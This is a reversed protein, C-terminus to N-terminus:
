VNSRQKFWEYLAKMEELSANSKLMNARYSIISINGEVYGLSPVLKDISPSNDEAQGKNFMLEMGLVPCHTPINIMEPTLNYPLNDRTARRKVAVLMQGIPDKAKRSHYREKHKRNVEERHTKLYKQRKDRAKQAFKPDSAYREKAAKSQCEKCVPYRGDKRNKDKSYSELPKEIKCRTCRKM